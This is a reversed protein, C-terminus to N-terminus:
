PGGASAAPAAVDGMVEAKFQTETGVTRALKEPTVLKPDYVVLARGPNLTVKASKM